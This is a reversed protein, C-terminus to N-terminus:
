QALIVDTLNSIDMQIKLLWLQIVIIFTLLVAWYFTQRTIKFATFPKVDKSVHFSRMAVPKKSVKKFVTKKVLKKTPKKAVIKKVLKKAVM